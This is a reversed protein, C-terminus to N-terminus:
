NETPLKEVHDIFLIEVPAKRTEVKLGLQEQLAVLIPPPSDPGSPNIGEPTWDLTFSYGGDLGTENIVARGLAARPGALFVALHNMSAAKATMHGRNSAIDGDGGNGLAEKKIKPGNKMVVLAYVSAEKAERHVALKFREALLTRLRLQHQDNTADAAAKAVIDYRETDLWAPGSVQADAVGYARLICYKLTANTVTLTGGNHGVHTNGEGTRNPKVSAVDFALTATEQALLVCSALAAFGLSALAYKM